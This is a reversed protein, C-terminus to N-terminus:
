VFIWQGLNVPKTIFLSCIVPGEFLQILCLFKWSYKCLVPDMSLPLNATPTQPTDAYSPSQVSASFVYFMIDSIVVIHITITLVAILEVIINSTLIYSLINVCERRIYHILLCLKQM